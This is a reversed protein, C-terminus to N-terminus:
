SLFKKVEDLGGVKVGNLIVQPVTRAGPFDEFFKKKNDVNNLKVEEISYGAVSLVSKVTQCGQCNDQSYVIAKNSM